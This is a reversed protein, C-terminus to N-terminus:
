GEGTMARLRGRDDLEGQAAAQQRERVELERGDVLKQVALREQGLQTLEALAEDLAQQAVRVAEGEAEVRARLRDAYRHAAALSAAREVPREPGRDAHAALDRRAADLREQAARRV